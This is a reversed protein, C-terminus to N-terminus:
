AVLATIDDIVTHDAEEDLMLRIIASQAELESDLITSRILDLGLM